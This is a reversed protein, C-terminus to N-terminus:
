SQCQPSNTCVGCNVPETGCSWGVEDVLRLDSGGAIFGIQAESGGAIFGFTRM